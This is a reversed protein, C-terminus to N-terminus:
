PVIRVTREIWSQGGRGDRIVVWFSIDGVCRGQAPDCVGFSCPDDAAACEDMVPPLWLTQFVEDDPRRNGTTDLVVRGPNFAGGTAYFATV